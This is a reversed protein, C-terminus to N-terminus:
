VARKDSRGYLPVLKEVSKRKNERTCHAYYQMTIRPSSHGLLSSLTEYGIGQELCRTAYTHRLTHMHVQSISLSEAIRVLKRQVARPEVHKGRSNQFVFGGDEAKCYIEKLYEMLFAPVPVERCGAATKPPQLVLQTKHKTGEKTIRQLTQVVYICREEFDVDKWQLACIEGLRLGTYLCVLYIFDGKRVLAEELKSQENLTLYRPASKQVCPVRIKQCPNVPIQERMRAEKLAANLNRLINQVTGPQLKESLLVAFCQIDERKLDAIETDGLYPILYNDVNRKYGYYTSEKVYPRTLVELWYRLWVSLKESREAGSMGQDILVSKAKQRTLKEKVEQYQRGYVYGWRVKGEPSREKVYRGEYRGDKRRYINEGRKAM